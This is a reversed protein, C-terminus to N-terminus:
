KHQCREQWVALEYRLGECIPLFDEKKLGTVKLIKSNDIDRDYARDYMFQWYGQHSNEYKLGPYKDFYEDLEVWEVKLQILQEYIKAVEGWKLNQASSVTFAEGRAEDKFLLNAILKGSNGAWDFGATLDKCIKPLYLPVQRMACDIVSGGMVLDFRNASFSIVPRVITWKSNDTENRLFDECRAKPLSYSEEAQYVEDKIVDLLRPASETVPHQGDAYIRYSSLFILHDTHAVLVPHVPKYNELKTYHIFNVIGDYYKGDLFKELFPVDANGKYFKQNPHCSVKDELCIVDVHHGAELLERATHTGLTGGGAILLVNKM